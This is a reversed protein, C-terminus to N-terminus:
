AHEGDALPLTAAVRTGGGAPSEITLRGALGAVRDRMGLLGHGNPDAGGTGDDRVELHLSGDRVWAAIEARSARAHKVVNTLAEAVLFYASTEIETAIPDVNIDVHVPLDIRRAVANVSARLGRRALAPPLVGHALERLEANSQQAHELAQDILSGATGDNSALAHRALKLTIITHVLRGQAGDHLDQLVRRRAEDAETLLQARAATLQSRSDAEAIATDLLAALHALREETDAPPLEEDSWAAIAVGWLQGDVMVPAGVAARVDFAEALQRSHGGDVEYGEVRAPRRSRRVIATVSEAAYSIRAGPALKAAEGGHHAIVTLQEGLELRGLVVREAGALAAMEAVVADFVASAGAGKAVLMAGRRLAAQEAELRAARANLEGNAIATAALEAFREMRVEADAPLQWAERSVAVMAGWRRGHVIVPVAVACGVGIELAREALRGGTQRYDDVRQSRGGSRHVRAALSDDPLRERMGVPIVGDFEGASAVAEPTDGEYRWIQVDDVGLLRALEEAIVAFVEPEAAERAVLAAIRRLAAQENALRELATATPRATIAQPMLMVRNTEVARRDVAPPGSRRRDHGLLASAPTGHCCVTTGRCDPRMGRASLENIAMGTAYPLLFCVSRAASPEGRLSTTMVGIVVGNPKEEVAASTTAPMSRVPLRAMTVPADDPIPM